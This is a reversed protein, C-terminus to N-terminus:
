DAHVTKLKLSYASYKAETHWANQELAITSRKLVAAAPDPENATCWIKNRHTDLNNLTFACGSHNNEPLDM